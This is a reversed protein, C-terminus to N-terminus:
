LLPRRRAVPEGVGGPIHRHRVPTAGDRVDGAASEGGPLKIPKHKKPDFPILEGM